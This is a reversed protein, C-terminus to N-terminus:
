PQQHRRMWDALADRRFQYRGPRAGGSKALPDNNHILVELLDDGRGSGFFGESRLNAGLSAPRVGLRDLLSRFDGVAQASNLNLFVERGQGVGTIGLGDTQLRNFAILIDSQGLVDAIPVNRFKSEDLWLRMANTVHEGPRLERSERSLSRIAEVLGRDTLGIEYVDTAREYFLTFGWTGRKSLTAVPSDVIFDSKLGGEAVGARVRGYGVGVRVKKTDQTKYAESIVCLGASEIMLCSYPEEDGIQFKVSSHSGTLVKTMEPYEDGVKSKEYKTTGVQAYRVDGVVDIVKFKLTARGEPPTATPPVASPADQAIVTGAGLALATFGLTVWFRPAARHM